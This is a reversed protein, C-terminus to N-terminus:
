LSSRRWFITTLVVSRRDGNGVRRWGSRLRKEPSPCSRARLGAWRVSQCELSRSEAHIAEISIGPTITM